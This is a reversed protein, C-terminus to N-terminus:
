RRTPPTPSGPYQADNRLLGCTVEPTSCFKVWQDCFCPRPERQAIPDIPMPRNM